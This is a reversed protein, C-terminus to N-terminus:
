ADRSPRVPAVLAKGDVVAKREQYREAVAEWRTFGQVNHRVAQIFRRVLADTRPGFSPLEGCRQDFAVVDVNHIAVVRAFAEPLPLGEREHLVLV